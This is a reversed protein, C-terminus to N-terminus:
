IQAQIFGANTLREYLTTGVVCCDHLAFHAPDFAESFVASLEYAAQGPSNIHPVRAVIRAVERDFEDPPAGGAILAYPDWNAIVERVIALAADYDARTKM